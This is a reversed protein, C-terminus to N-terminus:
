LLNFEEVTLAAQRILKRLLGPGLEDHQPISLTYEYGSKVLMVHSGRHRAVTWGAREFKRVADSGSCVRLREAM